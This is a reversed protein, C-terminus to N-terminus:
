KSNELETVIAGTVSRFIGLHTKTGFNTFFRPPDYSKLRRPHDGTRAERLHFAEVFVEGLRREFEEPLSELVARLRKAKGRNDNFRAISRPLKLRYLHGQSDKRRSFWVKRVEPPIVAFDQPKTSGGILPNATWLEVTSKYGLRQSTGYTRDHDELDAFDRYINQIPAAWTQPPKPIM